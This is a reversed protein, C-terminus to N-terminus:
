KVALLQYDMEVCPLVVIKRLYFPRGAVNLYQFRWAFSQEKRFPTMRRLCHVSMICFYSDNTSGHHRTFVDYPSIRNCLQGGACREGCDLECLVSRSPRDHKGVPGGYPDSLKNQIDKTGVGGHDVVARDHHYHWLRDM